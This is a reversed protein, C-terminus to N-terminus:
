ECYSIHCHPCGTILENTAKDVSVGIEKKEDYPLYICRNCNYCIGNMPAFHPYNKKDCLEKQAKISKNVDFEKM